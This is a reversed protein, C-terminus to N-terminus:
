CQRDIGRLTEPVTRKLDQWASSSGGGFAAEELRRLHQRLEALSASEVGARQLEAVIEESTLLTASLNRKDIVYRSMLKLAALWPDSSDDLKNWAVVFSKFAKQRRAVPDIHERKRQWLQYGWVGMWFRLSAGVAGGCLLADQRTIRVSQPAAVSKWPLLDDGTQKVEEQARPERDAPAAVAEGVVNMSGLEARLAEYQGSVPNFVAVEVPPLELRGPKLPVLAFRFVSKSVMGEDRDISQSREAKDPYVKVDALPPFEPSQAGELSGRGSVEITVTATEGVKVESASLSGKLQYEGVWGNFKAPKGTTPLPQVELTQPSSQFTRVTSRGGGGFFPDDFFEDLMSRGSRSQRNPMRLRAKFEFPAAEIKGPALPIWAETIEIVRYPTGDIVQEYSKEGDVPVRKVTSPAKPDISAELLRARTFFRTKIMVVQGVYPQTTSFEREVFAVDATKQATGSNGPASSSGSPGEVNFRIALTSQERGKFKVTVPPIVFAGARQPTLVFRYEQTKSMAGNIISVNTSTGAPQVDIGDIAPLEPAEDPSGAITLTYVFQDELTGRTKDIEASITDEAAFAAIPRLLGFILLVVFWRDTSQVNM